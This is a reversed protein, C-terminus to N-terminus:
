HIQKSLVQESVKLRLCIYYAYLRNPMFAKILRALDIETLSILIDHFPIDGYEYSTQLDHIYQKVTIVFLEQDNQSISSILRSYNRATKHLCVHKTESVREVGKHAPTSILQNSAHNFDLAAKIM